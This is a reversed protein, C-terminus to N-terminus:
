SLQPQDSRSSTRGGTNGRYHIILAFILLLVTPVILLSGEPGDSGGSWLTSGAPKFTFYHGVPQIGSDATGYLYTQAWDWSAHFGIAWWASGTLRVSVCFAFGIAATSFIGIWTEGSNFTHIYCFFTSTLWAAEWFGASASNKLHLWLCPAVGLLAMLYVGEPGNGQTNLYAFLSICSVAGLAWWYNIGRSLTFLMYCRTMGEECLGTLLFAVGWLAGFGFIASGSLSVAGIHVWGGAFLAGVLASLFIFGGALGIFFHRIRNTGRLNYDLIRRREILSCVAAAGFVGLFEASQQLIATAPTFEGVKAHFAKQAVLTGAVGLILTLLFTLVLFLAVSWGVRIGNEGFLIWKLFRVETPEDPLQSHMTAPAEDRSVETASGRSHPSLLLEQSEVDPNM